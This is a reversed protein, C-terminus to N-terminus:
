LSCDEVVNDLYQMSHETRKYEPEYTFMRIKRILDEVVVNEIKNTLDELADNYSSGRGHIVVVKVITGARSRYFGKLLLEIKVNNSTWQFYEVHSEILLGTKLSFNKELKKLSDRSWPWYWPM